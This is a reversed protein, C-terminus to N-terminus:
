KIIGIYLEATNAWPTGKDLVKVITGVQNCLIKINFSKQALHAEFFLNVPIGIDKYLWHIEM